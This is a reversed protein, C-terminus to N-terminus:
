SNLGDLTFVATASTRSVAGRLMSVTLRLRSDPPTRDCTSRAATEAAVRTGDSTTLSMQVYQAWRRCSYTQEDSYAAWNRLLSMELASVNQVAHIPEAHVAARQDV